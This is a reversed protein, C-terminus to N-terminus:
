QMRYRTLMESHFVVNEIWELLFNVYSAAQPKITDDLTFNPIGIFSINFASCFLSMDIVTMLECPFLLISSISRPETDSFIM